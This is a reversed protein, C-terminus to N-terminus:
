KKNTGEVGRREREITRNNLWMRAEQLKTIAIANERCCFKGMQFGTLRDVLIQIVDEIQVGNKGFERVPGLQFKIRIYGNEDEVLAPTGDMKEQEQKTTM